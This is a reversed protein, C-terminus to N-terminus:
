FSVCSTADVRMVSEQNFRAKYVSRILEVNAESNATPTHWIVLISSKEKAIFGNGSRWQGAAQIVTFGDPFRPTVESELFSEWADEAIAAGNPRSMGFIIELRAMLVGPSTCAARTPSAAIGDRVDKGGILLGASFGALVLMAVAKM